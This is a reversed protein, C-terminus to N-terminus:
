FNELIDALLLMDTKLYRSLKGTNEEDMINWVQQAHEYDKDRIDIKNLNSYFVEKSPLRPEKFREWTDM